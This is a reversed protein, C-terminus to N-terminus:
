FNAMTSVGNSEIKGSSSRQVTARRQQQQRRNISKRREIARAGSLSGYFSVFWSGATEADVVVVFVCVCLCGATPLACCFLIRRFIDLPSEPYPQIYAGRSGIASNHLYSYRKKEKDAKSAILSIPLIPWDRGSLTRSKPLRFDVCLTKMKAVRIIRGKAKREASEGIHAKIRDIRVHPPTPTPISLIIFRSRPWFCIAQLENEGYLSM